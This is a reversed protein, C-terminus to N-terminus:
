PVQFDDAHGEIMFPLAQEYATRWEGALAEDWQKGHFDRLAVLLASEFKAYDPVQIGLQHHRNGLLRLYNKMALHPRLHNDIIIQVAMTLLIGQRRLDVGEFYTQVDPFQRFFIEYFQDSFRPHSSALILELSNRINM